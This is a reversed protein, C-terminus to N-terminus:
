LGLGGDPPSPKREHAQGQSLGNYRESTENFGGVERKVRERRQRVTETKDRQALQAQKESSYRGWRKNGDIRRQTEFKQWFEQADIGYEVKLTKDTLFKVYGNTDDIRFEERAQEAAEQVRREASDLIEDRRELIREAEERMDEAEGERRDIETKRRAMEAREAVVNNERIGLAEERQLIREAREERVVLDNEQRKLAVERRKVNSLRPQLAAERSDVESLKENLERKGKSLLAEREDLLKERETLSLERDDLQQMLSKYKKFDELPLHKKLKDVREDTADYGAERLVQRVQNHTEYYLGNDGHGFSKMGVYKGEENKPIYFAQVHPHTEDLHMAYGIFNEHGVHDSLHGLAVESLRQIDALKENTLDECKGTYAPDLQFIVEVAQPENKGLGRYGISGDRKRYSRKAEAFESEIRKVISDVTDDKTPDRWGGRGDVMRVINNKVKTPDIDPNSHRRVLGDREELSRFAHSISPRIAQHFNAKGKGKGAKTLAGARMSTTYGM